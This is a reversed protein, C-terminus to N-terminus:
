GPHELLELVPTPSGVENGRPLREVLTSSLRSLLGFVATAPTDIGIGIARGHRHRRRHSCRRRAHSASARAAPARRREATLDPVPRLPRAHLAGAPRGLGSLSALTPGAAPHARRSGFAQSRPVPTGAHRRAPSTAAALPTATGHDPASSGLGVASRGPGRSWVSATGRSGTGPSTPTASAISSSGARAACLGHSSPSRSCRKGASQRSSGTSGMASPPSAATMTRRASGSGPGSETRPRAASSPAAPWPRGPAHDGAPQGSRGASPTVGHGGSGAARLSMLPAQRGSAARASSVGSSTARAAADPVTFALGVMSLVGLIVGGAAKRRIRTREAYSCIPSWDWAV